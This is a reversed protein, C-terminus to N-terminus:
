APLALPGHFLAMTQCATSRFFVTHMRLLRYHKVRPDM